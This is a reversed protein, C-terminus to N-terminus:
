LKSIQRHGVIPRRTLEQLKAAEEAAVAMKDLRAIAADLPELIKLLDAQLYSELAAVIKARALQLHGIKATLSILEDLRESNSEM